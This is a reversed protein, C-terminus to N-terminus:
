AQEFDVRGTLLMTGTMNNLGRRCRVSGSFGAFGLWPV